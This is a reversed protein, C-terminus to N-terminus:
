DKCLINVSYIKETATDNILMSVQQRFKYKSDLIAFQMKEQPNITINKSETKFQAIEKAAKRDDVSDKILYYPILITGKAPQVCFIGFNEAIAEKSLFGFISHFFAQPMSMSYQDISMSLALGIPIAIPILVVCALPLALVRPFRDGKRKDKIKKLADPSENYIKIIEIPNSVNNEITLFYASYEQKLTSKLPIEQRTIKVAKCCSDDTNKSCDIVGSSNINEALVLNEGLLLSILLIALIKKM